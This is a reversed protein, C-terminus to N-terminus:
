KTKKITHAVKDPNHIKLVQHKLCEHSIIKQADENLGNLFTHIEADELIGKTTLTYEFINPNTKNKNSNFEIVHKGSHLNEFELSLHSIFISKRVTGSYFSTHGRLKDDSFKNFQDDFRKQFFVHAWYYGTHAIHIYIIFAYVLLLVVFVVISIKTFVLIGISKLIGSIVIFIIGLRKYYVGDKQLKYGHENEPEALMKNELECYKGKMKHVWYAGIGDLLLLFFVNGVAMLKNSTNHKMLGGILIFLATLIEVTFAMWFLITDARSTSDQYFGPLHIFRSHHPEKRTELWKQKTEFDPEFVSNDMNLANSISLENDM